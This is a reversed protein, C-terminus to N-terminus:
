ALVTTLRAEVEEYSVRQSLVIESILIQKASHLMKREGTSLGKDTERSVLGKIVAAVELLDGSKIRIMNERYRRSWNQTMNVELGSIAAFISDAEDAGVIPRVGISDSTEKPIMVIMDGVPMKVVYYERTTGNIKKAEIREIEGAGHLPHAIRDGIRYM